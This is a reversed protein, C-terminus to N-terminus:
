GHCLAFAEDGGFPPAEGGPRLEAGPVADTARRAVLPQVAGVLVSAAAQLVPAMGRVVTGVANRWVDGVQHARRPVSVRIPPGALQQVPEGRPMGLNGLRRPWGHAGGPVQEGPLAQHLGAAALGMLSGCVRERSAHRPSGFLVPWPARGTQSRVKRSNPRGRAIRVSLPTGNAEHPM